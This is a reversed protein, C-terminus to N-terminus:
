SATKEPLFIHQILTSDDGHRHVAFEPILQLMEV